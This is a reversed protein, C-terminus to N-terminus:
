YTTHVRSPLRMRRLLTISSDHLGVGTADLWVGIEVLVASNSERCEDCEDYQLTRRQIEGIRRLLFFRPQSAGECNTM